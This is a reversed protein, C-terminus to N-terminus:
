RVGRMMGGYILQRIEVPADGALSRARFQLHRSRKSVSWRQHGDSSTTDVWRQGTFTTSFDRAAEVKLPEDSSSQPVFVVDISNFRKQRQPEGFDIWRSQWLFHIGGVFYFSGAPLSPMTGSVTIRTASNDAIIRKYVTDSSEDYFYVPCGILEDETWAVVRHYDDFWDSGVSGIQGSPVDTSVGDTDGNNQKFITVTNSVDNITYVEDAGSEFFLGACDAYVDWVSWGGTAVDLVLAVDNRSSGSSSCFLIYQAFKKNYVGYWNASQSFNLDLYTPRISESINQVTSRLGDLAYIGDSSAFIIQNEILAISKPITCGVDRTTHVYEFATSVTGFLFWIAKERFIYVRDQVAVLGTIDGDAGPGVESYNLADFYEVGASQSYYLRGPYDSDGALFVIDHHEAIYKCAPPIANTTPIATTGLSTDAFNDAWEYDTSNYTYSQWADVEELLFPDAGGATTRYVRIKDVQRDKPRKLYFQISKNGGGSSVTTTYAASPDSEIGRTSNYYTYYWSHAGDDINGTGSGSNVTPASSPPALGYFEVTSGDHVYGREEGTVIFFRDNYNLSSPLTGYTPTVSELTNISDPDRRYVCLYGDSTKEFLADGTDIIQLDSGSDRRYQAIMRANIDGRTSPSRTAAGTWTGHNANSTSDLVNYVSDGMKWYGKLHANSSVVSDPIQGYAYRKKDSDSLALEATGTDDSRWIRFDWMDGTFTIASNFPSGVGSYDSGDYYGLTITTASAISADDYDEWCETDISGPGAIAEDSALGGNIWLTIGQALFNSYQVGLTLRGDESTMPHITSLDVPSTILTDGTTPDKYYLALKKNSDIFLLFSSDKWILAMPVNAFDIDGIQVEWYMSLEGNASGVHYTEYSNDGPIVVYGTSSIADASYQGIAGSRTSGKRKKLTRNYLTVNRFEPSQNANIHTPDQRTNLGGTFDLQGIKSFQM